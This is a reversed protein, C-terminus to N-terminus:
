NLQFMIGALVFDKKELLYGKQAKISKKTLRSLRKFLTKNSHRLNQSM